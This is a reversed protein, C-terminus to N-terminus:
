KYEMKPSMGGQENTMHAGTLIRLSDALVDKWQQHLEQNRIHPGFLVMTMALLSVEAKELLTPTLVYDSATTPWDSYRNYQWEAATSASFEADFYITTAGSLWWGVPRVLPDTSYSTVQRPDVKTLYRFDEEDDYDLRFFVMSKFRAPTPYSTDSATLSFSEYIKNFDFEYNDELLRAAQRVKQPIQTDLTTGKNLENRVITHFESLTPM